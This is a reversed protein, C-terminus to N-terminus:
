TTKKPIEVLTRVVTSKVIDKWGPSDFTVVVAGATPLNDLPDPLFWNAFETFSPNHGFIALDTIASSARSLVRAVEEDYAMYLEEHVQLAAPPLGWTNRMILATSLARTAHSSYLLNPVMGLDALRRAMEGAARIGRGALPRHVDELNDHDWSSKGHRIIYLNREV